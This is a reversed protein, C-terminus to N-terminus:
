IVHYSKDLYEDFLSHIENSTKKYHHGWNKKLNISSLRKCYSSHKKIVYERNIHKYHLLKIDTLVDYTVDGIPSVEHCGPLFNIEKIKRPNFICPKSSNKYQFGTKICDTILNNNYIPINESIMEFGIPVIISSNTNLLKTKIDTHYIFEDIDIVIVWDANSQKWCNNKIDLYIDDRIENNTDYSIVNAGFSKIIEVSNDTSQNDYITINNTFKFYHNLFFPLIIEENYCIAFVDIKM